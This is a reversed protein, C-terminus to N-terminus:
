RISCALSLEADSLAYQESAGSEILHIALMPKLASRPFILRDIDGWGEVIDGKFDCVVAAGFHQSEVTGNRTVEVLLEYSM